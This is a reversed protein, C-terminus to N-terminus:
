RLYDAVASELEYISDLKSGLVSLFLPASQHCRVIIPRADDHEHNAVIAKNTFLSRKHKFEAVAPVYRAADARMATFNTDQNYNALIEAPTESRARSSYSAHPTYKVHTLSRLGDAPFPMTAWFPGDMITMAMADFETPAECLCVEAIEIEIDLLEQEINLFDCRRIVDNLHAYTVNLVRAASFQGLPTNIEIENGQQSLRAVPADYIIQIASEQLIQALLIDRLKYADFAAEDVRFVAEIRDMNFLALDDHRVPHLPAGIIECFSKFQYENLWSGTRAIAYLHTFSDDICAAYEQRFQAYHDHAAKATIYSRPYHYGNHARAQNVYSALQMPARRAELVAVKQGLRAALLALRLGYFGGGIIITDFSVSM